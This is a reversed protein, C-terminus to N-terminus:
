FKEESFFDKRTFLAFKDDGVRGYITNKHSFQKLLKAQKKLIQDGTVQGFLDNILKFDQINSCVMLCNDIGNEDIYKEVEEFFGTRNYIGTLEDHTALYKERNVHNIERTKEVFKLIYGNERVSKKSKITIKTYEVEFYHKEGDIIFPARRILHEASKEKGLFNIRYFVEM